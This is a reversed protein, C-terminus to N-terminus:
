EKEKELENKEKKEKKREWGITLTARSDVGLETGASNQNINQSDCKEVFAWDIIDVGLTGDFHPPYKLDPLLRVKM